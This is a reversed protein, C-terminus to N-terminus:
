TIYFTKKKIKKIVVDNDPLTSYMILLGLFIALVFMFLNFM